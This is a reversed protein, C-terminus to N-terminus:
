GMVKKAYLNALCSRNWSSVLRRLHRGTMIAGCHVCAIRWVPEGYEGDDYPVHRTLKTMSFPASCGAGCGLPLKDLVNGLVSLDEYLRDAHTQILDCLVELRDLYVRVDVQLQYNTMTPGMKVLRNTVSQLEDAMRLSVGCQQEAFSRRLESTRLDVPFMVAGRSDVLQVQVDQDPTWAATGDVRADLAADLDRSPELDLPTDTRINCGKPIVRDGDEYRLARLKAGYFRARDAELADYVPRGTSVRWHEQALEDPDIAYILQAKRFAVDDYPAEVLYLPEQFLDDTVQVRKLEM